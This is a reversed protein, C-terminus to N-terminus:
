QIVYCDYCDAYCDACLCSDSAPLRNDYGHSERLSPEDIYDFHSIYIPAICIATVIVKVM